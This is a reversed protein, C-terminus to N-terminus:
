STRRAKRLLRTRTVSAFLVLTFQCDSHGLPSVRLHVHWTSQVDTAEPTEVEADVSDLVRKDRVDHTCSVAACRIM